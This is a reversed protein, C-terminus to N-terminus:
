WATGFILLDSSRPYFSAVRAPKEVRAVARPVQVTRKVPTAVTVRPPAALATRAPPRRVPHPVGGGAAQATATSTQEAETQSQQVAPAAEPTADQIVLDPGVPAAADPSAAAPDQVPEGDGSGPPCARQHDPWTKDACYRDSQAQATLAPAPGAIEPKASAGTRHPLAAVISACLCFCAAATLVKLM